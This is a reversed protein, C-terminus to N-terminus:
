SQPEDGCAHPVSESPCAPFAAEPNMGAHTPFAM